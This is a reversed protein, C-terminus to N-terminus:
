GAPVRITDDVEERRRALVQRDGGFGCIKSLNSRCIRANSASSVVAPVATKSKAPFHASPPWETDPSIAKDFAIHCAIVSRSYLFWGVVRLVFRHVIFQDRQGHELQLQVRRADTAPTSQKGAAADCDFGVLDAAFGDGAVGGPLQKSLTFSSLNLPTLYNRPIIRLNLRSPQGTGARAPRKRSPHRNRLRNRSSLIGFTTVGPRSATRRDLVGQVTITTQHEVRDTVLRSPHTM